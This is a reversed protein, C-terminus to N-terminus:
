KVPSSLFTLGFYCMCCTGEWLWLVVISCYKQPPARPANPPWQGRQWTPVLTRRVSSPMSLGCRDREGHM